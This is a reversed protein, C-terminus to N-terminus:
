IKIKLQSFRKKKHIFYDLIISKEYLMYPKPNVNKIKFAAKKRRKIIQPIFYILNAYAKIIAWSHQPLKNDLLYYWFAVFDLFIRFPVYRIIEARTYNKLLLIITNRHHLFIKFPSIKGFTGSGYHYVVSKPVYVMRYNHFHLRWCFDAEDQYIYFIEDFLGVKKIVSVRTVLCNGSTWAIDIQDDYQGKDRETTYFIRGRCFPYGYVDMFGGAAGAYEFHTKKRMSKIKPQCAGIEPNNEMLNIMPGLWNKTVITDDNLLVIYGRKIKKIAFNCCGGFGKRKNLRFFKIQKIKKHLNFFDKYKKIESHNDVLYIKINKYNSSLVSKICEDVFAFQDTTIVIINVLPKKKM